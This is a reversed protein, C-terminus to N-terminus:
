PPPALGAPRREPPSPTSTPIPFPAGPSVSEPVLPLPCDRSLCCPYVPRVVDEGQRRGKLLSPGSYGLWSSMCLGPAYFVTIRLSIATLMFCRTELVKFSFSMCPRVSLRVDSGQQFSTMSTTNLYSIKSSNSEGTEKYERLTAVLVNLIAQPTCM